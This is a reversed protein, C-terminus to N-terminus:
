RRQAYMISSTSAIFGRGAPIAARYYWTRGAPPYDAQFRWSGNARTRSVEITRWRCTSCRLREWSIERRGWGPNINGQLYSNGGNTTVGANFDRMAYLGQIDSAAPALTESGLYEVRYDANGAVPTSFAVQGRPGTTATAVTQWATEGTLVRELAIDAGEVPDGSSTLQARYKIMDVGPVSKLYGPTPTVSDYFVAYLDTRTVRQLTLETAAQGDARAAPDGVAVLASVLGLLAALAAARPTRM